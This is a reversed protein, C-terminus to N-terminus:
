VQKEKQKIKSIQSAFEYDERELALRMFENLVVLPMEEDIVKDREYAIEILTKHFNTLEDDEGLEFFIDYTYYDNDGQIELALVYAEKSGGDPFDCDVVEGKLLKYKGVNYGFDEDAFMIEFTADGFMESLKEFISFPSAWATNFEIMDDSIFIDSANWKTGWNSTSWDYWNDYGYKKIYNKSMSETVGKQPNILYEEDSIIRTPATTGRLEEPMPIIKNFDFETNDSKVLSVIKKITESDTYLKNTIWNPM